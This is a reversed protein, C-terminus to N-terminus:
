KANLSSSHLYLIDAIQDETRHFFHRAPQSSRITLQREFTRNLQRNGPYSVLAHISTVNNLTVRRHCNGRPKGIRSVDRLVPKDRIVIRLYGFVSM